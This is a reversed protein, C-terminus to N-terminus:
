TKDHTPSMRTRALILETPPPSELLESFVTAAGMAVVEVVEVVETAGVVVLGNAVV